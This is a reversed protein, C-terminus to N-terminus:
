TKDDEAHVSAESFEKKIAFMALHRKIAEPRYSGTLKGFRPSVQIVEFSGGGKWSTGETVGGPDAGGVVRQLRPFLFDLVTEANREATIWRRRM